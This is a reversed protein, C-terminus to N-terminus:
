PTPAYHEFLAYSVDLPLPQLTPLHNEIRRNPRTDTLAEGIRDLSRFDDRLIEKIRTAAWHLRPVDRGAGAACFLSLYAPYSTGTVPLPNRELRAFVLGRVAADPHRILHASLIEMLVPESPGTLLSEVERRLATTWGLQALADLRLPILDRAGLLGPRSDIYQLTDHAFGRTTLQRCINFFSLADRADGSEDAAKLLRQRMEARSSAKKLDDTLTLLFRASAPLSATGLLRARRSADGTRHNAFLWANLWAGGHDPAALMRESALEEIQPFDGRALLARFWVQATDEAQSPHDKLLRRYIQDSLGPQGLQWLQALQRGAAYNEPQLNYATSLAIFATQLDGASVAAQYKELFYGTRIITFRSWAPPWLVGAYTVRYGVTRLFVFVALAATLYTLAVLTGHFAFARGWFPRVDTRDVSCRWVGSETQRLLPCVRQFRAPQNWNTMAACGTEWARGSDSPHQCPCQGRKSKLRYATKRTNWYLLGWALRIFDSFWGM